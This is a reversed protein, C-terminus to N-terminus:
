SSVIASSQDCHGMAHFAIHPGNEASKESKAAHPHFNAMWDMTNHLDPRILPTQPNSTAVLKQYQDVKSNRM